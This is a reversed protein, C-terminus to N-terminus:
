NIQTCGRYAMYYIDIAIFPFYKDASQLKIAVVCLAVYCYIEASLWFQKNQTTASAVNRRYKILTTSGLPIVTPFFNGVRYRKKYIDVLALFVLFRFSLMTQMSM